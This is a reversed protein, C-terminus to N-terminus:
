LRASIWIGSGDEGEVYCPFLDLETFGKQNDSADILSIQQIKQVLTTLYHCLQFETWNLETWNTKIQYDLFAADEICLLNEQAESIPSPSSIM